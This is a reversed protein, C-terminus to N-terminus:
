GLTKQQARNACDPRPTGLLLFDLWPVGTLEENDAGLVFGNGFPAKSLGEIKMGDIFQLPQVTVDPPLQLQPGVCGLSFVVSQFPGLDGGDRAAVAVLTGDVVALDSVHRVGDTPALLPSAIRIEEVRSLIPGNTERDLRFRVITTNPRSAGRDAILFWWQGNSERMCEIGEVNFDKNILKVAEQARFETKKSGVSLRLLRPYRQEWYSSEAVWVDGRHGCVAELDTPVRHIDWDVGIPALSYTGQTEALRYVRPTFPDKKDAVAINGGDYATLGSVSALSPLSPPLTETGAAVLSRYYGYARLDFQREESVYAMGSGIALALFALAECGAQRYGGEPTPGLFRPLVVRLLGALIFLALSAISFSRIFDIRVQLGSLEDFLTPYTYVVNKAHYYTADAVEEVSKDQQYGFANLVGRAHADAGLPTLSGDWDFLVGTRIETESPVWPLFGAVSDSLRDTLIGLSLAAVAAIVLPIVPSRQRILRTSLPFRDKSALPDLLYDVAFIVFVGIAFTAGLEQLEINM